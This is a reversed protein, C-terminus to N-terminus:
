SAKMGTSRAKLRRGNSRRILFGSLPEWDEDDIAAFLGRVVEVNEQSM